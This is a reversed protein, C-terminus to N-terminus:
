GGFEYTLGVLLSRGNRVERRQLRVALLDELLRQEMLGAKPFEEFIRHLPNHYERIVFGGKSTEEWDSLGGNQARLGLLIDVKDTLVNSELVASSWQVKLKEFYQFLLKEPAHEGFLRKLESLIEIVFGSGAEPFLAESKESLSYFIEPRGVAVRPVRSRDLYGIGTLDECHQKVAMYSGGVRSALEAVSLGESVKLQEIVQRWQPRILDRFVPLM